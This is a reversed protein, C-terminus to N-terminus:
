KLWRGSKILSREGLEKHLMRRVVTIGEAANRGKVYKTSCGLDNQDNAAQLLYKKYLGMRLEFEQLEEVTELTVQITVPKFLEEEDIIKAYM